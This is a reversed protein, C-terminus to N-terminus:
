TANSQAPQPALRRIARFLGVAVLTSLVVLVTREIPYVWFIVRWIREFTSSSVGGVFGVAFEYLLGGTLHQAMTGVFALVAIATLQRLGSRTLWNPTRSITPSLLVILAVLHLWGYPVYGYAFLLSYPSLLFAVLVMIYIAVAIRRHKSLILSVITVNVLAPLFDLGFFIPPNIAYAIVTGIIVALAGSWLDAILAIATILFDGATFRGSIGVMQFTPVSRLVFYVAAFVATLTIQSTKRKLTYM